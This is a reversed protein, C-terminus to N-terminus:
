IGNSVTKKEKRKIHWNHHISHRSLSQKTHQGTNPISPKQQTHTDNLTIGEQKAKYIHYKEITNMFRGKQTIHLIKM